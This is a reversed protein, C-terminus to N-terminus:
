KLLIDCYRINLKVKYIIKTLQNYIFFKLFTKGWGRSARIKYAIIMKNTIKPRFYKVTRIAGTKKERTIAYKNLGNALKKTFFVGSDLVTM